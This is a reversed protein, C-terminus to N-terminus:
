VVEEEVRILTGEEDGGELHVLNGTMGVMEELMLDAKKIQYKIGGVLNM